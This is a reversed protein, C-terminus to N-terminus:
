SDMAMSLTRIENTCRKLSITGMLAIPDPVREFPKERRRLQFPYSNKLDVLTMESFRPALSINHAYLM